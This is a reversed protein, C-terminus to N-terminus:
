ICYYIVFLQILFSSTPRFSELCMVLLRIKELQELRQQEQQQQRTLEVISSSDSWRRAIWNLQMCCLPGEMSLFFCLHYPWTVVSVVGGWTRLIVAAILVWHFGEEDVLSISADPWYRDSAATVKDAAEINAGKDLLIRVMLTYKENVAITLATRGNFPLFANLM